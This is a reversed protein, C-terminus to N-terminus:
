NALQVLFYLVAAVGAGIGINAAKDFASPRTNEYLFKYETVQQRLLLNEEDRLRIEEDKIKILNELTLVRERTDELADKLAVNERELAENEKELEQVYVVFAKFEDVSVQEQIM